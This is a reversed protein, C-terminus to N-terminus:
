SSPADAVSADTVAPWADSGGTPSPAALAAVPAESGTAAASSGTPSRHVPHGPGRRAWKVTPGAPGYALVDTRRHACRNLTHACRADARVTGTDRGSRCGRCGLLTERVGPRRTPVPELAVATRSLHAAVHHVRDDLGTAALLLHRH